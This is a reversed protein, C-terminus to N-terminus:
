FSSNFMVKIVRDAQNTIRDERQEGMFEIGNDLKVSGTLRNGNVDANYEMGVKINLDSLSLNKYKSVKVTMANAKGAIAAVGDARADIDVISNKIKISGRQKELVIKSELEYDFLDGGNSHEAKNQTKKDDTKNSISKTNNNRKVSNNVKKSLNKSFSEIDKVTQNNKKLDKIEKELRKKVIEQNVGGLFEGANLNKISEPNMTKLEQNFNQFYQEVLNSPSKLHDQNKFDKLGKPSEDIESLSIDNIFDNKEQNNQAAVDMSSLLSITAFGYILTKKLKLDVGLKRKNDLFENGLAEDIVSKSFVINIKYENKQDYIADTFYPRDFNRKIKEKFSNINILNVLESYDMEQDLSKVIFNENNENYSLFLKNPFFFYFRNLYKSVINKEETSLQYIFNYEGSIEDFKVLPVSLLSYIKEDVQKEIEGLFEKIEPLKKILNHLKKLKDM